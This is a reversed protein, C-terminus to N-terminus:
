QQALDSAASSAAAADPAFELTIPGLEGTFAFPATYAATVTSPASGGVQTSAQGLGGPLTQVEGGMVEASDVLFRADALWRSRVDMVWELTFTGIPLEDSAFETVLGARNYHLRLRDGQVFLAFGAARRGSSIIVGEDGRRRTIRTTLRYSRGVWNPGAVTSFQRSGPMLVFRDRRSNPGRDLARLHTRDDLPLVGYEHAADWWERDLRAVIEPHESALDFQEGLDSRVDYLEWEHIGYEDEERHRTVIKWGDSWLGRKGTIEFYQTRSPEPEGLLSVGHIPRQPIGDYSERPTIGAADLITPTIDIAHAFDARVSPTAPLRAPWRMMCPVRVGGAYTDWKFFRMPTNGAQAWGSPYHNHTTPGGIEDLQALNEELSDEIGMYGRFENVTGGPGGEGSAGNDSVVMVLTDEVLGADELFALLRAVQDDTHELFGTFVEQMRAAVRQESASLSDWSPVSESSPPLATGEPVIGAEIQRALVREREVDWGHDFRGRHRDRYEQPAQHPAHMAGFALYLLFPREQGASLHEGIMGISQDVLDESLHYGEQQPPDAYHNDIWLQPSFQDDEGGVFGYHRDFGKALPWHDFPGDGGLDSPPVLHWKGIAYTSYGEERLMRAVTAAEPEIRGRYAPYGTDYGALYGMGVSHHNRGTLLSARSPSCLPTMHFNTFTVGDAGISDMAPTSASGGFRGLHGFGTDDLVIVVVNPADDPPRRFDEWSPTSDATTTGITGRFTDSSTM